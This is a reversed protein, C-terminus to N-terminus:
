IIILTPTDIPKQCVKCPKGISYGDLYLNLTFSAEKDTM